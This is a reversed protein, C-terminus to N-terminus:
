AGSQQQERPSRWDDTQVSPSLVAEDSTLATNCSTVPGQTVSVTRGVAEHELLHDLGLALINTAQVHGCLHASMWFSSLLVPLELAIKSPLWAYNLCVM